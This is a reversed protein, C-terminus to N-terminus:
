LDVYKYYNFFLKYVYYFKLFLRGLKNDVNVVISM